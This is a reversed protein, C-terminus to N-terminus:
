KFHNKTVVSDIGTCYRASDPSVPKYGNHYLAMAMCSEDHRHKNIQESTQEKMTGFMGDREAKDWHNFITSCGTKNFDFTYLSGGVLHLGSIDPNGYYGVAKDSITNILKSDDKVAVVPPMDESFLYDLKGHVICATDLWVIRTFGKQMAEKIAYVKFGYLSQDFLPSHPPYRDIHIILNKEPNTEKLSAILREQQDLYAQGGFCTNCIAISNNM